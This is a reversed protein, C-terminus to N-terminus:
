REFHAMEAAQCFKIIGGGFVYEDRKGLILFCYRISTTEYATVESDSPHFKITRDGMSFCVNEKM